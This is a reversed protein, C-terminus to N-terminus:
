GRDGLEFDKGLKLIFDEAGPDGEPYNFYKKWKKVADRVEKIAGARELDPM